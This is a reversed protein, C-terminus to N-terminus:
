SLLFDTHALTGTTLLDAILVKAQAGTGDSDWYLRHHNADSVDFVFQGHGAVNAATGQVFYDAIMNPGGITGNDAITGFGFPPAGRQIVILDEGSVFDTITDVGDSPQQFWFQDAGAGGTLEDSGGWGFLQDNGGGGIMTDDGNNGGGAGGILM